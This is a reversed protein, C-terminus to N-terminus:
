HKIIDIVQKIITLITGGGITGLVILLRFFNKDLDQLQKQTDTKIGSVSKDLKDLTEVTTKKFEELEKLIKEENEQIKKNNLEIKDEIKDNIHNLDSLNLTINEVKEKFENINHLVEENQKEVEIYIEIAKKNIDLIYQLESSTIGTDKKDTM